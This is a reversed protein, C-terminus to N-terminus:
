ERQALTECRCRDQRELTRHKDLRCTLPLSSRRSFAERGPIGESGGQHLITGPLLWPCDRRTEPERQGTNAPRIESPTNPAASCHPLRPSPVLGKGQLACWSTATRRAVLSRGSVAEEIRM